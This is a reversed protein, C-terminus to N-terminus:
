IETEPEAILRPKRLRECPRRNYMATATASEASELYSM